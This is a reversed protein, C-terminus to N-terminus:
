ASTADHRRRLFFALGILLTAVLILPLFIGMGGDSGTGGSGGGSPATARALNAAANGDKGEKQLAAAAGPPIEDKTNAPPKAAPRQGGAQPIGETYQDVASGGSLPAAVAAAPLAALAILAIALIRM